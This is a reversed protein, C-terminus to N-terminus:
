DNPCGDYAVTGVVGPPAHHLVPRQLSPCTTALERTTIVSTKQSTRRRRRRLRSATSFPSNERTPRSFSARGSQENHLKSRTSISLRRNHHTHFRFVHFGISTRLIYVLNCYQISLASLTLPRPASWARPEDSGDQVRSDPRSPGLALLGGLTPTEGALQLRPSFRRTAAVACQSARRRRPCRIRSWRRRSTAPM